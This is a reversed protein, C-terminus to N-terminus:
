FNEVIRKKKWKVERENLNSELRFRYLCNFNSSKKITKVYYASHFYFEFIRRKKSRRVFQKDSNRIGMPYIIEAATLHRSEHWSDLPRHLVSTRSNHASRAHLRDSCEFGTAFALRGKVGSEMFRQSENPTSSSTVAGTLLAGSSWEWKWGVQLNRYIKRIEAGGCKRRKSNKGCRNRRGNEKVIRIIIIIENQFRVFSSYIHIPFEITMTQFKILTVTSLVRERTVRRKAVIPITKRFEAHCAYILFFFFFFVSYYDRGDDGGGNVRDPGSKEKREIRRKRLTPSLLLTKASCLPSKKLFSDGRVPLCMQM